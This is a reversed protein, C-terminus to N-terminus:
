RDARRRIRDAWDELDAIVTSRPVLGKPYFRVIRRRHEDLAEAKAERREEPTM